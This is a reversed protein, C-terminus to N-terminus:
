FNWNVGLSGFCQPKRQERFERSEQVVAFTISGRALTWAAGVAVRTVVHEMHVDPAGPDYNGGIMANRAVAR